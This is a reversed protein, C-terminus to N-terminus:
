NGETSQRQQNPPLFPMRGTFFIPSPPPLCQNSRISHRGVPHNTHRGRNIKGEVMIHLLERRAVAWVPSGPFLATFRNHHHYYAKRIILIAITLMVFLQLSQGILNWM